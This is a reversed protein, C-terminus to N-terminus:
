VLSQYLDCTTLNVNLYNVTVNLMGTQATQSVPIQNHYQQYQQLRFIKERTCHVNIIKHSAHKKNCFLMTIYLRVTIQNKSQLIQLSMVPSTEAQRKSRLRQHLLM